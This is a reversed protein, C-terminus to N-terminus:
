VASFARMRSREEDNVVADAANSQERYSQVGAVVVASKRTAWGAGSGSTIASNSIGADM